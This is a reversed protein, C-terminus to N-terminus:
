QDLLGIVAGGRQDIFVGWDEMGEFDRYVLLTVAEVLNEVNPTLAVKCDPCIFPESTVDIDKGSRHMTKRGDKTRHIVPYGLVAKANLTNDQKYFRIIGDSLTAVGLPSLKKLRQCRACYLDAVAQVFRGNVYYNPRDPTSV